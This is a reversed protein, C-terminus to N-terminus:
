TMTERNFNGDTSSQLRVQINNLLLTAHQETFVAYLLRKVDERWDSQCYDSTFGIQPRALFADYFKQDILCPVARRLM